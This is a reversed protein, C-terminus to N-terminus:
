KVPVVCRFGVDSLNSAYAHAALRAFRQSLNFSSGKATYYQWSGPNIVLERANGTLDMVGYVSCDKPYSGVEVPTNGPTAQDLKNICAYDNHFVNGWVFERGDVGRAAKEWELATPLRHTIGTQRTMFRCYEEAAEAVVGIVPMRDNYPVNIQGNEDWLPM